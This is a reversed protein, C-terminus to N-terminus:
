LFSRKNQGWCGVIIQRTSQCLHSKTPQLYNRHSHSTQIEPSQEPPAYISRGLSTHTTPQQQDPKNLLQACLLFLFFNSIRVTFILSLGLFEINGSLLFYDRSSMVGKQSRIKNLSKKKRKRETRKERM